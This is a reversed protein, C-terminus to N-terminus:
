QLFVIGIGGAHTAFQWDGALDLSGGEGWKVSGAPLDAFNGARNHQTKPLRATAPPNANALM